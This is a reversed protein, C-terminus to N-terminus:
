KNPTEYITKKLDKDIVRVRIGYSEKEAIVKKYEDETNVSVWFCWKKYGSISVTQHTSIRYRNRM